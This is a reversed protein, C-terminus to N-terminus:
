SCFCPFTSEICTRTWRVRSSLVTSVVYDESTPITGLREWQNSICTKFHCPAPTHLGRLALVFFSMCAACLPLRLVFKLSNVEALLWRLVHWQKDQLPGKCSLCSIFVLAYCLHRNIWLYRQKNLFFLVLKHKKEETFCFDVPFLDNCCTLRLLM